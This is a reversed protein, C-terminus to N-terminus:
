KHQSTFSTWPTGCMGTNCADPDPMPCFPRTGIKQIQRTMGRKQLM